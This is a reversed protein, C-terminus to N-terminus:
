LFDKVSRYFKQWDFTDEALKKSGSRHAKIQRRMQLLLLLKTFSINETEALAALDAPVEVAEQVKKEGDEGKMLFDLTLGLVKSLDLLTDASVNRKSNEVDSLFGKSIGAKEALVDQTWELELRREKIRDGLSM